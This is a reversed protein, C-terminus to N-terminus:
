RRPHPPFGKSFGHYGLWFSFALAQFASVPLKITKSSIPIFIVIQLYFFSITKRKNEISGYFWAFAPTRQM